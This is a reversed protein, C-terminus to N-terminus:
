AVEEHIDGKGNVSVNGNGNGNGNGDDMGGRRAVILSMTEKHRCHYELRVLDKHPGCVRLARWAADHMLMDKRRCAGVVIKRSDNTEFPRSQDIKHNGFPRLLTPVARSKWLISTGRGTGTYWKHPWDRYIDKGKTGTVELGCKLMARALHVVIKSGHSPFSSTMAHLVLICSQLRYPCSLSISAVQQLVPFRKPYDSFNISKPM